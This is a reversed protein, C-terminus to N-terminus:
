LEPQYAVPPLCGFSRPPLDDFEWHHVGLLHLIRNLKKFRKGMFETNDITDGDLWFGLSLL